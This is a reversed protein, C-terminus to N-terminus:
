YKDDFKPMFPIDDLGVGSMELFWYVAGFIVISAATTILLKRVIQPRAPASPATGEEVDGEEEQTVIGFPLVIFLTLWWIIAFTAIGTVLTM